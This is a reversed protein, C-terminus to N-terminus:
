ILFVGNITREFYCVVHINQALSDTACFVSKKGVHPQALQPFFNEKVQFARETSHESHVCLSFTLTHSHLYMLFISKRIRLKEMDQKKLFNKSHLIMGTRGEWSGKPLWRKRENRDADWVEWATDGPICFSGPALPSCREDLYWLLGEEWGDQWYNM